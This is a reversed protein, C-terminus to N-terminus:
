KKTSLRNANKMITRLGAKEESEYVCMTIINM